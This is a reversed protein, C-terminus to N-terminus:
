TGVGTYAQEAVAGYMWELLAPQLQNAAGLASIAEYAPYGRLGVLTPKGRYVSTYIARVPYIHVEKLHAQYDIGDMPSFVEGTREAADLTLDIWAQYQQAESHTKIPYGAKREKEMDPATFLSLRLRLVGHKASLIQAAQRMADRFASEDSRRRIFLSYTPSPCPGQPTVVGTHDAFTFGADNVTTYTTSKDVIVEIDGLLDAKAKAPPSLDFIALDAHSRYRVDSTWMLQEAPDCQLAVGNMHAALLTPAVPDFQYHRYDYIGERRAIAPSHVDRWYRRVWEIPLEPKKWGCTIRAYGAQNEIAALTM